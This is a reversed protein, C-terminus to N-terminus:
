GATFFEAPLEAKVEEALKLLQDHIPQFEALFDQADKVTYCRRSDYKQPESITGDAFISIRSTENFWDYQSLSGFKIRIESVSGLEIEVTDSSFKGVAPAILNALCKSYERRAAAHAAANEVFAKIREARVKDMDFDSQRKWRALSKGSYSSNGQVIMFYDDTYRLSIYPEWAPCLSDLLTKVHDQFVKEDALELKRQTEGTESWARIPKKPIKM